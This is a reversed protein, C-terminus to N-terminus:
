SHQLENARRKRLIIDRVMERDVSYGGSSIENYIGDEKCFRKYSRIARNVETRTLNHNFTEGYIGDPGYWDM